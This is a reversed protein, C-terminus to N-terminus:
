LFKIISSDETPDGVRKKYTMIRDSGDGGVYILRDGKKAYRNKM